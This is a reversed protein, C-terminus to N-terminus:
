LKTVVRKTPPNVWRVSVGRHMAMNEVRAVYDADDVEVSRAVTSKDQMSSCGGMAVMSLAFLGMAIACKM